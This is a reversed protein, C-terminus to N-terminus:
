DSSIMYHLWVVSKFSSLLYLNKERTVTVFSDSSVKRQRKEDGSKKKGERDSFCPLSSTSFGYIEDRLLLMHDGRSQKRHTNTDGREALNIAPGCHIFMVFISIAIAVEAKRGGEFGGRVREDAEKSIKMRRKEERERERGCLYFMIRSRIKNSKSHRSKLYKWKGGGRCLPSHLCRSFFKPSNKRKEEWLM